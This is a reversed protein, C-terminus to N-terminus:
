VSGCCRKFKKLSGCSCPDNRGTKPSSGIASAGKAKATIGLSVLADRKRNHKASATRYARSKRNENGPRNKDAAISM